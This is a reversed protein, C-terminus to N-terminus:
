HCLGIGSDDFPDASASLFRWSYSRAKLELRLVGFTTANIIQSNTHETRPKDLSMGGTGVIFERMGHPQDVVGDPNQPAFREYLHHHGVLLVDAGAEYLARYMAGMAPSDGESSFVPHHWFALTCRAPHKALDARLWTEEPSGPGCGGEILTCNSNLAVIHWTGLDFSYWGTGRDGAPGSAAGVGDFYDFYGDATGTSTNGYEHNGPVPRLLPKIRGWTPGFSALFKGYQGDTYQEDGLVLVGSEDNDLLLNSTRWEGCHRSDGLGDNFYRSAPDCAIDGTALIQPDKGAPQWDPARGDSHPRSVSHLGKGDLGVAWLQRHGTRGASFVLRTGDPSFAPATEVSGTINAVRRAHSGDARMIWVGATGRVFAILRGDPSWSPGTDAGPKRTLRRVNTGDPDMTYVDEGGDASTAVFAIQGRTSWAPDHPDTGPADLITERGSGDAAVTDITRQGVPGASFALRGGSPAWTPDADNGGPDTVERLEGGAPRIIWIASGADLQRAVAIRQGRPSWSAGALRGALIGVARHGSRLYLIDQGGRHGIYAIEGNTGPYAAHAQPAALLVFAVAAAVLRQAVAPSPPM